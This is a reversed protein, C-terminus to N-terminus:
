WPAYLHLFSRTSFANFSRHDFHLISSKKRALRWLFSGSWVLWSRPEAFIAIAIGGPKNGIGFARYTNCIASTRSDSRHSNVDRNIKIREALGLGFRDM